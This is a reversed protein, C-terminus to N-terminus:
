PKGQMTLRARGDLAITRNELDVRLRDASFTGSPASGSVGGAGTVVQTKLDLDVGSTALRYGDATGFELRGPIAMANRDLDFTAAQSKITAPGDKLLISATLDALQVQAVQASKQIASGATVSFPRGRSDEGRYIANNVRLREETTAVKNRDLLFSIEGRPFLPAVVMVALVAGIGAPLLIALWRVLRDHSGGPLAFHRRRDRLLDAERTM